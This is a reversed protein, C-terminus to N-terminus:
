VDKNKLYDIVIKVEKMTFSKGKKIEDKSNNLVKLLTKEPIAKGDSVLDKISM